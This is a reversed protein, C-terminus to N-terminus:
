TKPTLNSSQSNILLLIEDQTLGLSFLQKTSQIFNNKTYKIKDKDSTEVKSADAPNFFEGTSLIHYIAVLIKRAIAIYTRKKGRRKSIVNFKNAYYSNDKDKVAAHAVEVLAPKLYVGARSIKVSKKKGASENCGPALGAWSVLRYHSSFQSMDTGIESLITIASKRNVGPISCLLNIASEYPKVIADIIETVSKIAKNLYDIHEQIINMRQKQSDEWSIGHISNLIDDPSSKCHKDIKELIDKDEFENQTLITNIIATSTKGFIDSFVMDVKCNGVTLANTFRNKESTRMNTLKYLYRTLERLIRIDKDPIFSSRVMGLKFLDAIWKADKNDDKEGKICKVWKPNAVVVNSIHGELANYVPIYYKGTSEMCVNQCDNALLWERFEVLSNNFTSFRKRLYQPKASTSDCIVAVIFSKHVDVGCAKPYIVEM